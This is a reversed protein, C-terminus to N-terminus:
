GTIYRVLMVLAAFAAVLGGALGLLSSTRGYGRDHGPADRRATRTTGDRPPDDM